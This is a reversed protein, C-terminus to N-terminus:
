SPWVAARDPCGTSRSCAASTPCAACEGCYYTPRIAANQGVLGADVAEGVEVVTGAFEHGLVVPASIGTLPHPETPIFTSASYYEHLDSGCIGNHGVKVLVQGATPEPEPLDELRIDQVGHYRAARM